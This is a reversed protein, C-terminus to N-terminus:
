IASAPLERGRLLDSAKEGIMITPININGGPIGPMVSADAIRLGDIGRVRLQADVVAADDVGMRCTGCAHEGVGVAERIYAKIDDDSQVDSGPMAEHDIADRQPSRAYIDRAMKVGAVLIDLDSAEGFMNYFIRPQDDPNASRLKVWGRSEPYNITVINVFRHIPARTLGPFWLDADFGLATAALYIDPRALDPRSRAYVIGHCATSTFPGQKKFLWQLAFRTARDFRMQKLFTDSRNATWVVPLLSHEQLNGGVGPLDAHVAIGMDRLHTAPGIGSLMLLHPSHWSGGSLVVEREARVTMRENNRRYEVGVARSNEILIRSVKALTLITLNKRSKVPDLDRRATSAREGDSVSLELRSVGITQEGFLDDSKPHGALVAAAEFGEYLMDPDDVLKVGIPGSAGHFTSEGRWSNELRKFYPLVSAYGWGKLGQAEWLDYDGRNGRNNMMGNVTSSGGLGRGRFTELRRGGLGPEPEGQISISFAKRRYAKLFGIPIRILPHRYSRGGAELLLVSCNPDESLRNAIVAGASGAGVIIYDYSAQM